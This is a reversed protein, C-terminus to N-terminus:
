GNKVVQKQPRCKNYYKLAEKFEKSSPCEPLCKFTNELKQEQALIKWNPKVKGDDCNRYGAVKMAYEFRAFYFLFKAAIDLFFKAAIDLNHTRLIPM